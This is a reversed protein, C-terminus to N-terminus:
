FGDRPLRILQAQHSRQDQDRAGLTVALVLSRALYFAIAVETKGSWGGDGWACWWSWGTHNPSQEPYTGGQLAEPWGRDM